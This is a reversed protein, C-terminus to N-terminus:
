DEATARQIGGYPVLLHYRLSGGALATLLFPKGPPLAAMAKEFDALNRIPQNNVNVIVQGFVLRAEAAISGKEVFSVFVGDLSDLRNALQMSTTIDQGTFGFDTEFETGDIRPQEGISVSLKRPKGDRLIEIQVKEGPKIAAVTRRFGNLDKENEADIDIEGVRVIIDEPKLKGKGAPSDTIVHTVIAGKLDPVGLFEALDRSLPQVSVGLWGRSFSGSEILRDRVELATNIPITFGIGRGQGRSNVGIIEGRLNVLPGGSSGPDISADTQIFDNILSGVSLNRGKASVIGFSVTGDLGYPNGIALVGEGVRVAAYDGFAPVPLPALPVIKIVAIDTQQDAGILEARYKRRDGSLTVEIKQTKDVVHENTVIYGDASVVFGSGTVLSRRNNVRRIAEIYVVSPLLNASVQSIVDEFLRLKTLDGAPATPAIPAPLSAGHVSHLPVLTVLIVCSLLSFVFKM